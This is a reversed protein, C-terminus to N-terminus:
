HKLFLIPAAADYMEYISDAAEVTFVTSCPTGEAERVCVWLHRSNLRTYDARLQCKQERVKTLSVSKPTYKPEM